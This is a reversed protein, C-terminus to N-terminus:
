EEDGEDEDSDTEINRYFVVTTVPISRGNGIITYKDHGDLRLFQVERVQGSVPKGANRRFEMIDGDRKSFLMPESQLPYIPDTLGWTIVKDGHELESLEIRKLGYPVPPILKSNYRLLDSMVSILDDIGTTKRTLNMIVNYIGDVDEREIITDAISNMIDEELTMTNVGFYRSYIVTQFFEQYRGKRLLYYIDYERDNMKYWVHRFTEMDVDLGDLLHIVKSEESITKIIPSSKSMTFLSGYIPVKRKGILFERTTRSPSELIDIINKRETKVKPRGRERFMVPVPMMTHAEERPQVMMQDKLYVYVTGDSGSMTIESTLMLNEVRNDIYAIVQLSFLSTLPLMEEFTIEVCRSAALRPSIKGRTVFMEDVLPSHYTAVLKDLLESGERSALELHPSFDRVFSDPDVSSSELDEAMSNLWVKDPIFAKMKEEYSMRKWLTNSVKHYSMWKYIFSIAPIDEHITLYPANAEERSLRLAIPCGYIKFTYTGLTVVFTQLGMGNFFLPDWGKHHSEM